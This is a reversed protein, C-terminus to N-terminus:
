QATCGIVDVDAPLIGRVWQGEVRVIAHGGIRQPLRLSLWHPASPPVLCAVLEPTPSPVVLATGAPRSLASAWQATPLIECGWAGALRRAAPSDALLVTRAPDLRQSQLRAGLLVQAAATPSSVGRGRDTVDSPISRARRSPLPAVLPAVTPPPPGDTDTLLQVLHPAARGTTTDRGTASMLLMRGPEIGLPTERPLAWQQCETHSALALLRTAFASHLRAAGPHAHGRAVVLTHGGEGSRELVSEWLAAGRGATGATDLHALLTALDTVCVVSPTAEHLVELALATRAGDEVPLLTSVGDPVSPAHAGTIVHLPRHTVSALRHAVALASVLPTPAAASAELLVHGGRWELLHHAGEDIGDILGIPVRTRTGDGVATRTCTLARASLGDPLPEPWLPPAPPLHSFRERIRHRWSEPDSALAFHVTGHEAVIARGPTRPLRAAAGEGLVDRSDAEDLCRLAIRLTTNARIDASVVGAPRQTALVLHLGLSRGQSALRVLADLLDPHARALVAFEDVVVVIRPPPAEVGEEWQGLDRLGRAALLRERTRLVQAIGRLVRRTGDPDLDTVLCETHPLGALPALGSGGKHDILVLRVREPSHRLCLSFMWTLLAESKGSGTTGALLAHPGDEVLDLSFPRLAAGTSFPVTSPTADPEHAPVLLAGVPADLHGPLPAACSRARESRPETERADADSTRASAAADLLEGLDLRTLDGGDGETSLLDLFQRAWAGGVQAGRAPVLREVWVPVEAEHAAMVLACGHPAAAHGDSPAMLHIDAARGGLTLTRGDPLTLRVGECQAAVQACLWLATEAARGGVLALGRVAVGTGAPDERSPPSTGRGRATPVPGVRLGLSRSRRPAGLWVANAETTSQAAAPTSRSRLMAVVLLLRAGDCHRVGMWRRWLALCPFAALCVLVVGWLGLHWRAPVAVRVLLLLSLPALLVLARGRTTRVPAPFQVSGPRSRVEFVDPGVRLRGGRSLHRVGGPPVRRWWGLRPRVWTGNLSDLDEVRAVRSGRARRASGARAGTGVLRAHARSVEACLPLARGRGLVVEEGAAPLPHVCGRDPGRVCALHHSAGAAREVISRSVRGEERATGESTEEADESVHRCM